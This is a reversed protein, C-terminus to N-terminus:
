VCRKRRLWWVLAGGGGAAGGLGVATIAAVKLGRNEWSTPAAGVEDPDDGEPAGEGQDPEAPFEIYGGGPNPLVNENPEVGPELTTWVGALTNRAQPSDPDFGLADRTAQRLKEDWVFPVSPGILYAPDSTCTCNEGLLRLLNGVSSASIQDGKLVPGIRRAMGWVIAVEPLPPEKDTMGLSWRVVSEVPDGAYTTIVFPQVRIQTGMPTTTGVIAKRAEAVAKTVRQNEVADAGPLILITCWADVLHQALQERVPSRVVSRVFDTVSQETVATTDFGPVLFAQNRPSILVPTPLKQPALKDFHVRLPDTKELRALNAVEAVVNAEGLESHAASDVWQPLKERSPTTDNAYFVLRYPSPDRVIFGADRIDYPCATVTSPLSSLLLPAALLALLRLAPRLTM